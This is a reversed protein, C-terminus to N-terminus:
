IYITQFLNFLYFLDIVRWCVFLHINILTALLLLILFLIRFPALFAIINWYWFKLILIEGFDMCASKWSNDILWDILKKRSSRPLNSRSFDRAFLRWTCVVPWTCVRERNGVFCFLVFCLFPRTCKLSRRPFCELKSVFVISGSKVRACSLLSIMYADISLSWTNVMEWVGGYILLSPTSSFSILGTPTDSRAKLKIRDVRTEPIIHEACQSGATKTVHRHITMTIAKRM